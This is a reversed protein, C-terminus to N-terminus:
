LNVSMSSKKQLMDGIGWVCLTVEKDDICLGLGGLDLSSELGEGLLSFIDAHHQDVLM